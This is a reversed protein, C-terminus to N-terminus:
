TKKLFENEEVYSLLKDEDMELIEPEFFSNNSSFVVMVNQAKGSLGQYTTNGLNEHSKQNAYVYVKELIESTEWFKKLYEALTNSSESLRGEYVKLIEANKSLYEFDSQWAADDKYMDEIAWKYKSDIEERKKLKKQSM